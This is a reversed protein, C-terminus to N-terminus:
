SMFPKTIWVVFPSSHHQRLRSWASSYARGTDRKCRAYEESWSESAISSPESCQQQAQAGDAEVCQGEAESACPLQPCGEEAQQTTGPQVCDNASVVSAQQTDGVNGLRSLM